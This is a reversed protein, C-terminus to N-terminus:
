NIPFPCISSPLLNESIPTYVVSDLAGDNRTITIKYMTDHSPPENPIDDPNGGAAAYVRKVLDPMEEREWAVALIRNTFFESSLLFTAMSLNDQYGFLTYLPSGQAIAVPELTMMGRLYDYLNGGVDFRNLAPAPAFFAYIAQGLIEPSLVEKLGLARNLGMCNLQAMGSTEAAPIFYITEQENLLNPKFSKLAAPGLCVPSLHNTINQQQHSFSVSTNGADWVITLVYLSDFDNQPWDPIITPDAGLLTMIGRSITVINNHEWAVFILSNHYPSSILEAVVSQDDDFTFSTNVPLGYQIATPEITALPRVYSNPSDSGDEISGATNPAFIYNPPRGFKKNLTQPLKLARNLGKCTLQGEGSLPPLPKEGHRIFVITQIDVVKKQVNLQEAAAPSSCYVPNTPTNCIIPGGYIGGTMADANIELRLTCSANGALNFPNQCVSKDASTMQRLGSPLQVLGNSNLAFPTNNKVQYVAIVKQGSVVIRPAKVTATITFVPTNTFGSLPFFFCIFLVVNFLITKM